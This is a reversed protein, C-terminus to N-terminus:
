RIKAKWYEPDYGNSIFDQSEIRFVVFPSAMRSRLGYRKQVWKKIAAKIELDLHDINLWKFTVDKDKLWHKGKKCYACTTLSFYFIETKQLDQHNENEIIWDLTPLIDTELKFEM